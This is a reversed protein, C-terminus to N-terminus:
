TIEMGDPLPRAPTDAHQPNPVFGSRSTEKFEERGLAFPIVEERHWQGQSHFVYEVKGDDFLVFCSATQGNPNVQIQIAQSM